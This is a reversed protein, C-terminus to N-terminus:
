PKFICKKLIDKEEPKLYGLAIDFAKDFQSETIEIKKEPIEVILTARVLEHTKIYDESLNEEDHYVIIDYVSDVDGAWVKIEKTKVIIEKNNSWGVVQASKWNGCNIELTNKVLEIGKPPLAGSYEIYMGIRRYYSGGSSRDVYYIHDTMYPIAM